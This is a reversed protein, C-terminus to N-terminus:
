YNTVVLTTFKDNTGVFIETGVGIKKVEDLTEKLFVSHIAFEVDQTNGVLEVEEDFNCLSSVANMKINDKSLTLKLKKNKEGDLIINGRKVSNKFADSVDFMSVKDLNLNTMETEFDLLKLNADYLTYFIVDDNDISLKIIKDSYSLESVNEKFNKIILDCFAFPLVFSCDKTIHHDTIYKSIVSNHKSSFLKIEKDKEAVLTVGAYERKISNKDVSILVKKLGEVFDKTLNGLTIFDKDEKKLPFPFRSNLGTVMNNKSKGCEVVAIGQNVSQVMNVDQESFTELLGILLKGKISFDLGHVYTTMAGQEGNFTALIDDRFSVYSLSEIVPNESLCAKITNLKNLLEVRNM